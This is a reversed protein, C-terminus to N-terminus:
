TFDCVWHPGPGCIAIPWSAQQICSMVFVMPFPSQIVRYSIIGILIILNVFTPIYLYTYKFFQGNWVFSFNLNIFINFSIPLCLLSWFIFESCISYSYFLFINFFPFFFLTHLLSLLEGIFSVHVFVLPHYSWTHPTPIAPTPPLPPPLTFVVTSSCYFFSFFYFLVFIWGKLFYFLICLFYIM